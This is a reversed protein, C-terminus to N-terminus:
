KLMLSPLWLVLNPFAMCIAIGIVQLGIFPFTSRYFATLNEDPVVAKMFFNAFGYPPSLLAIQMNMCFIVGFWLPHFGLGVVIHTFIPAAIMLIALDEMVMGLIVLLLQMLVLIVWPNVQAELVIGEILRAAGMGAYFCSFCSAGTLIWLVMGFIRITEYATEKLLGWTLRRHIAACITVGVCGVASAETPTAAGVFISGLVSIIILVPLIVTKVSALKQWWNGREEPPLGPGLSPNLGTRIGIYIIYLSSLILGPILGGLLMGGASQHAIAAYVIMLVSPPILAGLAGGAMISGYVLRKDYGRKLMQPLAIIAATVVGASMIGVMAAILTCIVVTGMALGGRIGGTWLHMAGFLDEAVGSKQLMLGMFLFMPVAILIFSMMMSYTSTVAIYLGTPGWLFIAFLMSIGGLVFAIPLGSTLGLLLAGFLLITLGGISM